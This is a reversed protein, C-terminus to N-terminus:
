YFLLGSINMSKDEDDSRLYFHNLYFVCARGDSLVGQYGPRIGNHSELIGQFDKSMAQLDSMPLDLEFSLSDNLPFCARVNDETMELDGMNSRNEYPVVATKGEPVELEVNELNLHYSSLYLADRKEKEMGGTLADPTVFLGIVDRPYRSRLYDLKSDVKFATERDLGALWERYADADMPVDARGSVAMASRVQRLMSDRVASSVNVPFVSLLIFLVVPTLALWMIRDDNKLWLIICAVYCWLNFAILYARSVTIGYDSVRRVIGVSMLVLLPLMLRPMWVCVLRVAFGGFTRDQRYPRVALQLLVVLLMSASVLYSVWGDPLTWNAIIKVAYCYLTIFYLSVLPIFLYRVAGRLFAPMVALAANHKDQGSPVGQLVLMPAVLFFSFCALDEYLDSDVNLGFLKEFSLLLLSMGGWLVLAVLLAVVATCGVTLSFNWMPMDEKRGIFPLVIVSIVALVLLAAFILVYPQRNMVDQYRSMLVWIGAWLVYAAISPIRFPREEGLLSLGLSLMMATAPYWYLFFQVEQGVADSPVHNLVIGVVTLVVAFAVTLPFRGVCERIGAALKAAMGAITM